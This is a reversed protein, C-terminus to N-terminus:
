VEYTEGEGEVACSIRKCGGVDVVEGAVDGGGGGDGGNGGGDKGIVAVGGDEDVVGAYAVSECDEFGCVGGDLFDEGYVDEGM